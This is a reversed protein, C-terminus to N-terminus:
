SMDGSILCFCLDAQGVGPIAGAIGSGMTFAAAVVAFNNSPDNENGSFDDIMQPIKLDTIIAARTLRRNIENFKGHMGEVAKFVWYGSPDFKGYDEFFEYCTVDGMPDCRTGLTSCGPAGSKGSSGDQIWTEYDKFWNKSGDTVTM